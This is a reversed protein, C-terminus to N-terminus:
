GYGMKTFWCVYMSDAGKGSILAQKEIRLGESAEVFSAIRENEDAFVSCTIYVLAGGPKLRTIVHSLIKEQRQRFNSVSAPDFFYLSEPSRSWTGSGSCPLDALILPFSTAPLDNQDTLDAKFIHETGLGAEEFRSRLNKLISERIDSVTINCGPYLDALLISKGGSGACCDWVADRNMAAPKLYIATRQSSLDQVVAERNLVFVNDLKTGGAFSYAKFLLSGEPDADSFEINNNLLKSTVSKEHGPRLRIFLRPKELFSLCYDRHGIGSSLQDKWPFIDEVKFDTFRNSIIELKEEMPKEMQGHWEPHLHQLIQEQKQNTLFLGALIREEAPINRLTHGLRFFSYLMESVQKRDRSGMQPNERFFHKLWNHLPIDGTYAALIRLAYQLLNDFKM